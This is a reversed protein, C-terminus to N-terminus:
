EKLVEEVTEMLVDSNCPKLLRRVFGRRKAKDLYKPEWLVTLLIGKCGHRAMIKQGLCFGCSKPEPPYGTLTAETILVDPHFLDAIANAEEPTHAVRVEHRNSSKMTLLRARLDPANRHHDVLLIRAM